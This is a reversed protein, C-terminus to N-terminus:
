GLVRSLNPHYLKVQYDSGPNTGLGALVFGSGEVLSSPFQPKNKTRHDSPLFFFDMKTLGPGLHDVWPHRVASLGSLDTSPTLSVSTLLTM